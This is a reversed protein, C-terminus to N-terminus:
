VNFTTRNGCSTCEYMITMGEDASRAQFTSYYQEENGCKQCIEKVTQTGKSFSSKAMELLSINTENLYDKWLDKGQQDYVYSERCGFLYLSKDDFSDVPLLDERTSSLIAPAIIYGCDVCCIKGSKFVENPSSFDVDRSCQPCGRAILYNYSRSNNIIYKPKARINNRSCETDQLLSKLLNHTESIDNGILLEALDNDHLNVALNSGSIASNILLSLHDDGMLICHFQRTHVVDHIPHISPSIRINM